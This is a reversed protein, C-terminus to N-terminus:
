VSKLDRTYLTTDLILHNSIYGPKDPFVDYDALAILIGEQTSTYEQGSDLQNASLYSFCPYLSSLFDEQKRKRKRKRKQKEIISIKGDVAIAVM